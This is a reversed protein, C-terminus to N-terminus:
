GLGLNQFVMTANAEEIIHNQVTIHQRALALQKQLKALEAELQGRTKYSGSDADLTCLWWNLTAISSLVIPKVIYTTDYLRLKPSSLLFSGSSISGLHVYLSWM